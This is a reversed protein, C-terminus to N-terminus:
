RGLTAQLEEFRALLGAQTPPHQKRPTGTGPRHRITKPLARRQPTSTVQPQEDDGADNDVDGAPQEEGPALGLLTRARELKKMELAAAIDTISKGGKETKMAQLLELRSILPHDSVAGEVEENLQEALASRRTASEAQAAQQRHQAEIQERQKRAVDVLQLSRIQEDKPDYEGEGTLLGRLRAVEDHLLKVAHQAKAVELKSREAQAALERKQAAMQSVRKQFVELSVTKKPEDKKEDPKAEAGEGEAGDDGEGAAAKAAAAGPKAGPKGVLPPKDGAAGTPTGAEGDAEDDLQSFRELMAAADSAAPRAQASSGGGPKASASSTAAAPSAASPAGNSANIGM